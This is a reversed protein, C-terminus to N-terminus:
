PRSLYSLAAGNIERLLKRRMAERYDAFGHAIEVFAGPGRIVRERYYIVPDPVEGEIVLGNVTVGDFHFNAYAHEPGFGENTIGDGSMDVVKRACALPAKSLLTAAHGLAYGLATPFEDYGRPHAGILSAFSFIDAESALFSWPVVQVQQYRGSWEFAMAQIGGSDIIAQVIEPDRLAGALGKMQLDFEREDVSSSVDLALVLSLGCRPQAPAPFAM